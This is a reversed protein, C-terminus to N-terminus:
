SRPYDSCDAYEVITSFPKLYDYRVLTGDLKLNQLVLKILQRKEEIESSEFLEKARNSLNLLSDVTFYYNDEADQL